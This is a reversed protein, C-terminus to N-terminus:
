SVGTTLMSSPEPVVKTPGDLLENRDGMSLRSHEGGMSSRVGELLLGDKSGGKLLLFKGDGMSPFIEPRAVVQARLEDDGTSSSPRIM